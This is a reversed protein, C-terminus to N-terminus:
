DNRENNTYSGNNTYSKGSNSYGSNSNSFNSSNSSSDLSRLYNSDMIAMALEDGNDPNMDQHKKYDVYAYDVIVPQDEVSYAEGNKPSKNRFGFNADHLDTINYNVGADFLKKRFYKM